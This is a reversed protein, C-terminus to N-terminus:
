KVCHKYREGQSPARITDSSSFCPSPHILMLHQNLPIAVKNMTPALTCTCNWVTVVNYNFLTNISIITSLLRNWWNQEKVTVDILRCTRISPNPNSASIQRGRKRAAREEERLSVSAMNVAIVVRKQVVAQSIVCNFVINYRGETFRTYPGLTMHLCHMRCLRLPCITPFYFVFHM